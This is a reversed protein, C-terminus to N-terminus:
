NKKKKSVGIHIKQYSFGVPHIIVTFLYLSRFTWCPLHKTHLQLALHLLALPGQSQGPGRFVTNRYQGQWAPQIATPQISEQAEGNTGNPQYYQLANAGKSSSSYHHIIHSSSSKTKSWRSIPKGAESVWIPFTVSHGQLWHFPKPKESKLLIWTSGYTFM